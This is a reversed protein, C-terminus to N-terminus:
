PRHELGVKTLAVGIPDAPDTQDVLDHLARIAPCASCRTIALLKNGM